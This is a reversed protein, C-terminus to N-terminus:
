RSPDSPNSGGGGPKFPRHAATVGRGRIAIVGTTVIGPKFADESM